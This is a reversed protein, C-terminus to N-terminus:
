RTSPLSQQFNFVNDPDYTAKVELLREYNERYGAHGSDPLDSDPFNRCGM